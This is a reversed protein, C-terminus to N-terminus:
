VSFPFKNVDEGAQITLNKASDSLYLGGETVDVM